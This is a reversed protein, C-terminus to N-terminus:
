FGSRSSDPRIDFAGGTALSTIACDDGGAGIARIDAVRWIDGSGAADNNIRAPGYVVRPTGGCYIRVNVDAYSGWVDDDWYHVAVRFQDGDNAGDMNTNEPGWGEVDDIDLRPNPCRPRGCASAPSEPYGWRLTYSVWPLLPNVVCNSFYCDDLNFWANTPPNRHFHLDVDSTTDSGESENWWMEVRIGQGQVHVVFTCTYTVGFSDVITVTIVYDGSIDFYVRTDNETPAEVSTTASGAPSVVDWTCNAEGDPYFDTCHLEYWNLPPAVDETRCIVSPRCEELDDVCDNCDNDKGDCVEPEPLIGGECTGWEGWEMGNCIQQGDVCGGINRRGPAGSFCYQVSGSACACGEDVRGDCNDDSGNDCIETPGCGDGPDPGCVPPADPVDEGGGSDDDEVAGDEDADADAAVPWCSCADGVCEGGPFGAAICRGPCGAPDCAAGDGELVIGDGAGDTSDGRDRGGDGNGVTEDPSGCGALGAVILGACLFVGRRQHEANRIM